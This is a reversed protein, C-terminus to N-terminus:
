SKYDKIAKKRPSLGLQRELQGQIFALDKELEDVRVELIMIRKSDTLYAKRYDCGVALCQEGGAVAGVTYLGCKPCTALMM